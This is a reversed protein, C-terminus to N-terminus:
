LFLPGYDRVWVRDTPLHFFRAQSLDIGVKELVNRARKEEAAGDVLIHVKEGTHLHRVIDAYVWPITAFKGPWDARHHPWALWTAEHPEWEAPMFWGLRAPVM